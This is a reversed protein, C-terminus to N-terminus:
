KQGRLMNEACCHLTIREFYTVDHSEETELVEPRLSTDPCHSRSVSRCVEM